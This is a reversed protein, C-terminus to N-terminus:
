QCKLFRLPFLCSITNTPSISIYLFFRFSLYSFLSSFRGFKNLSSLKMSSVFSEGNFGESLLLMPFSISFAIANSNHTQSFSICFNHRCFESRWQIHTYLVCVGLSHVKFKSNFAFCFVSFVM